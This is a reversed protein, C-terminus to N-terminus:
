KGLMGSCGERPQAEGDMDMFFTFCDGTPDARPLSCTQALLSIRICDFGWGYCLCGPPCLWAVLLVTKGERLGVRGVQGVCVGDRATFKVKLHEKEACIKHVWLSSNLPLEDSVM